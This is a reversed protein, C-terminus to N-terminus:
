RLPIRARSPLTDRPPLPRAHSGTDAISSFPLEPPVMRATTLARDHVQTVLRFAAGMEGGESTLQLVTIKPNQAQAALTFANVGMVVEPVKYSGLYGIVGSKSM